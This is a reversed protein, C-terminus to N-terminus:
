RQLVRRHRDRRDDADAHRQQDRAHHDGFCYECDRPEPAQGDVRDQTAVIRDNLADDQDKGAGIHQDIQQVIDAIRQDVRADAISPRIVTTGVVSRAIATASGADCPSRRYMRRWGVMTTPPTSNRTMTAIATNAGQSPVLSGCASDGTFRSLHGDSWYQNPVSM